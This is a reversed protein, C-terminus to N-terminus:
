SHTFFKMQNNGHQVDHPHFIASMLFDFCCDRSNIQTDFKQAMM